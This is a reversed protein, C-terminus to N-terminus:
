ELFIKRMHDQFLIIYSIIFSLLNILVKGIASLGTLMCNDGTQPFVPYNKM